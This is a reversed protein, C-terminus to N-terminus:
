NDSPRSCRDVVTVEMPVRKSEIRFGVAEAAERVRDGFSQNPQPEIKSLALVFDYAGKLETEDTVPAGLMQSLYNAVGNMAVATFIVDRQDNMRISSKEDTAALKVDKLTKPPRLVFSLVDRTEKHSELKFRDALLAMIAPGREKQELVHDSKAEVDYRDTRMWPPGGVVRFLQFGDVFDLIDGVTAAKMVLRDNQFYFQGDRATKGPASPRISAVEFHAQAFAPAAAIPQPRFPIIPAGAPRTVPSQQSASRAPTMAMSIVLMSLSFLPRVMRAGAKAAFGRQFASKLESM